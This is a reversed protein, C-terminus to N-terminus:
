HVFVSLSMITFHTKMIKIYYSTQTNRKVQDPRAVLKWACNANYPYSGHEYGPSLITGSQSTVVAPGESSCAIARGTCVYM